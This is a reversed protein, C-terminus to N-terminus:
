ILESVVLCGEAVILVQIHVSLIILLLAVYQCIHKCTSGIECLSYRNNFAQYALLTLFPSILEVEIEALHLHLLCELLLGELGQQLGILKGLLIICDLAVQGPELDLLQVGEHGKHTGERSELVRVVGVESQRSGELMVHQNFDIHTGQVSSELFAIILFMELLSDTSEVPALESLSDLLLQIGIRIERRLLPFEELNVQDDSLDLAILELQSLM